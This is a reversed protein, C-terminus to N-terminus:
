LRRTKMWNRKKFLPSLCIMSGRFFVFYYWSPSAWPSWKKPRNLFSFATRSKKRIPMSGNCDFSDKELLPLADSCWIPVIQVGLLFPLPAKTDARGKTERVTKLFWLMLALANTKKVRCGCGQMCSLWEALLCSSRPKRHVWEAYNASGAFFYFTREKSM